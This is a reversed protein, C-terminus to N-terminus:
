AFHSCSCSLGLKSWRSRGWWQNTEKMLFGPTLGGCRARAGPNESGYWDVFTSVGQDFGVQPSWGLKKLKTIDARTEQVDGHWSFGTYFPKTKGALGLIGLLKKVIEKVSHNEGSGVNYAGGTLKGKDAVLLTADIADDIYLYDKRQNGTGLVELRKRDKQLKKLLDFMVGKRSRPGFINYYRLSATKLGYLACYSSCYGEAAAKSAGYNSIPLLPHDEPTPLAADGYVTSSSAFIVAEVGAKRAGELVNLTGRVNIEFDRAPDETSKPVSSQAAFHFIEDVGKSAKSLDKPNLVDGRVLEFRKSKELDALDEVHADSFNDLGVVEPGRSHIREALHSGMFGAVGTILVRSARGLM